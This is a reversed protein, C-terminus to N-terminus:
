LTELLQPDLAAKARAIREAKSHHLKQWAYGVAATVLLSVGVATAAAGSNGGSSGSQAAPPPNYAMVGFGKLPLACVILLLVAIKKIM